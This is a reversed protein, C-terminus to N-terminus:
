GVYNSTLAGHLNMEGVLVRQRRPEGIETVQEGFQVTADWVCMFKADTLPIRIDESPLLDCRGDIMVVTNGRNILFLSNCRFFQKGGEKIVKFSPSFEKIGNDM